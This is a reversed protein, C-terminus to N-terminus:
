RGCCPALQALDTRQQRYDIISQRMEPVGGEVEHVPLVPVSPDTAKQKRHPRREQRIRRGIASRRVLRRKPDRWVLEIALELLEHSLSEPASM